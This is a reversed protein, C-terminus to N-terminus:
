IFTIKKFNSIQRFKLIRRSGHLFAENDFHAASLKETTLNFDVLVNQIMISDLILKLPLSHFKILAKNYKPYALKYLEDITHEQTSYDQENVTGENNNNPRIRTDYFFRALSRIFGYQTIQTHTIGLSM